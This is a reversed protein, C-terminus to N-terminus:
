EDKVREIIINLEEGVKLGLDKFQKVFKKWNVADTRPNGHEPKLKVKLKVKSWKTPIM